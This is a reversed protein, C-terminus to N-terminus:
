GGQEHDVIHRRLELPNTLAALLIYSMSTINYKYRSDASLKSLAFYKRSYLNLRLLLCRRIKSIRSQGFQSKRMELAFAYEIIQSVSKRQTKKFVRTTQISSIRYSGVTMPLNAAKGHQILRIWLGYDEAMPWNSGYM